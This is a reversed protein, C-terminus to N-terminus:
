TNLVSCAAAFRAAKGGRIPVADSHLGFSTLRMGAFDFM